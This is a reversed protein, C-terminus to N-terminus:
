LLFGVSAGLHVQQWQSSQFQLITNKKLGKAANLRFFLGNRTIFGINAGLSLDTSGIGEDKFNIKQEGKLDSSFGADQSDFNRKGSLLFSVAPGVGVMFRLHRPDGLYFQATVPITIRNIDYRASAHFVNGKTDAFLVDSLKSGSQDFYIGTQVGFMDVLKMEGALGIKLGFVAEEIDKKEGDERYDFFAYNLGAEPGIKYVDYDTQARLSNLLFLAILLTLQKKMGRIKNETIFIISIMLITLVFIFIISIVM